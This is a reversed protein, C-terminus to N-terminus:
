FQQNAKFSIFTRKTKNLIRKTRIAEMYENKESILDISLLPFHTHQKGKIQQKGETHHKSMISIYIFIPTINNGNGFPLIEKFKQKRMLLYILCLHIM